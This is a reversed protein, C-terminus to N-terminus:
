ILRRPRGPGGPVALDHQPWRYGAPRSDVFGSAGGALAKVAAV